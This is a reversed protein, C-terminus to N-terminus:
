RTIAETSMKNVRINGYIYISREVCECKGGRWVCVEEEECAWVERRKVHGCRGGRWMCVGGEKMGRGVHM